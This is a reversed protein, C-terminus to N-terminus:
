IFKCEKGSHGIKTQIYVFEGAMSILRPPRLSSLIEYFRARTEVNYDAVLVKLEVYQKLEQCLTYLHNEIGGIWPPYLKNVMLVKIM